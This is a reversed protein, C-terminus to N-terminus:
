TCPHICRVGYGVCCSLFVLCRWRRPSVVRTLFLLPPRLPPVCLLTDRSFAYGMTFILIM